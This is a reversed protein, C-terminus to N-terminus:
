KINGLFYSRVEEREDLHIRQTGVEQYTEHGKGALLVVDGSKATGLALKIAKRRDAEVLYEGSGMGELIDEIILLPEEKRPNDSTVICVDALKSAIGGMISRKTKDRNGGCGFLCIVRNSTLRRISSLILGLADPTHAYDIIVTFDAPTDVVEIRGAVGKVTSLAHVMATLDLGLALGSGLVGMANYVSFEGPIPMRVEFQEGRGDLTFTVNTAGLKVGTATLDGQVKSYSIVGCSLERSMEKGTADDVNLVASECQLFLKKKALKYAEMTGHYDLHDLTLNTFIGTKFTIGAVRSQDLAISSVEMVVHSCGNDVMERMLQQLEFSEPTTHSAPVIEEGIMNQNTGILGVKVGLVQSLLHKLLYSSSTKGNTGTVAHCCLEKSPHRFWNSSIIALALRSNKVVIWPGPIVPQVECVVAVVGRAMADSIYDHGDESNGRIAVFIGGNKIDHTNYAVTPIEQEMECCNTLVEVNVLLERLKM